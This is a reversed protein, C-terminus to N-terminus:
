TETLTGTMKPHTCVLVKIFLEGPRMLNTWTKRSCRRRKIITWSLKEKVCNILYDAVRKLFRNFFLSWHNIITCVDLLRNANRITVVNNWYQLATNRLRNAVFIKLAVCQQLMTEFPYCMTGVICRQTASFITMACRGTYRWREVAAGEGWVLKNFALSHSFM